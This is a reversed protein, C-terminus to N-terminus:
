EDFKKTQTFSAPEIHKSLACIYNEYGESLKDFSIYAALPYPIDTETLHCYYESLHEHPKSLRKPRDRASDDSETLM